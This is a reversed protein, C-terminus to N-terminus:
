IAVYGVYVLVCWVEKPTQREGKRGEKKDEKKELGM